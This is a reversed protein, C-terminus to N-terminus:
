PTQRRLGPWRNPRTVHGHRVRSMGMDCHILVKRTKSWLEVFDLIKNFVTVGDCEYLESSGDVWNLYLRNDNVYPVLCPAPGSVSLMKDYVTKTAHVYAWTRMDTSHLDLIGGIYINSHPLPIM